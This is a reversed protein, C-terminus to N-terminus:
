QGIPQAAGELEEALPDNGHLVDGIDPVHPLVRDVATLVLDDGSREGLALGRHLDRLEVLRRESLIFAPKADKGRGDKRARGSMDHLHDREDFPQERLIERVDDIPRDVVGHLSEGAVAPQRAVDAFRQPLAHPCLDIRVLAVRRVEREPLARLRVSTREHPIRRPAGPIRPPVDLTRRHADLVKALPEVHVGAAHVVDKRVVLVLDRLRFSREPMRDDARPDMPLMEERVPHLHRLGSPVCELDVLDFRESEIRERETVLAEERMVARPHVEAYAREALGGFSEVMQPLAYAV